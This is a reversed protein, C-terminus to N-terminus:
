RNSALAPIFTYPQVADFEQVSSCPGGAADIALWNPSKATVAVLAVVSAIPAPQVVDVGQVTRNPASTYENPLPAVTVIDAPLPSANM